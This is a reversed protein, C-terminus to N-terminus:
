RRRRPARWLAEPEELAHGAGVAVCTLPSDAVRARMNRADVAGSLELFRDALTSKGHDIHAVLGFARQSEVPIM